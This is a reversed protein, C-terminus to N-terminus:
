YKSKKSIFSSYKRISNLVMLCFHGASFKHILLRHENQAPSLKAKTVARILAGGSVFKLNAFCGSNRPHWSAIGAAGGGQVPAASSIGSGMADQPGRQRGGLTTCM